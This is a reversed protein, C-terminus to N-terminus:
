AAAEPDMGAPVEIQAPRVPVAGGVSAHRQLQFVWALVEAVAKWTAVAPAPWEPTILMEHPNPILVLYVLSGVLSGVLVGFVLSAVGSLLFLEITTIFLPPLPKPEIENLAPQFVDDAM